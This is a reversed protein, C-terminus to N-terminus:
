ITNPDDNLRVAFVKDNMSLTELRAPTYYAANIATLRADLSSMSAYNAPTNINSSNTGGATSRIRNAFTLGDTSTGVMNAM